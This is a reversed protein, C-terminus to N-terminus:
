RGSPASPAERAIPAVLPGSAEEGDVLIIASEAKQDIVYALDCGVKLADFAPDDVYGCRFERTDVRGRASALTRGPGVHLGRRALISDRLNAVRELPRWPRARVYKRVPLNVELLASDADFMLSAEGNAGVVPVGDLYRRFVVLRALVFTTSHGHDDGESHVLTRTTDPRYEEAASLTDSGEMLARLIATGKEILPAEDVQRRAAYLSPEGFLSRRGNANTRYRVLRMKGADDDHESTWSAHAARDSDDQDHRARVLAAHLASPSLTARGRSKVFEDRVRSLALGAHAENTSEVKDSLDRALAPAASAALISIALITRM